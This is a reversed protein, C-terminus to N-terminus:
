ELSRSLRILTTGLSVRPGTGSFLDRDSQWSADLSLVQDVLIQFNTVIREEDLTNIRDPTLGFRDRLLGLQGEVLDADLRIQRRQGGVLLDFLEDVRHIRPGGEVALEAVLEDLEARVITRIAETDQPDAAPDLPVLASLLPGVQDLASKARAYISAQA